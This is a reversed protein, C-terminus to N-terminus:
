RAGEGEGVCAGVRMHDQLTCTTAELGFCLVYHAHTATATDIHNSPLIGEAGTITVTIVDRSGSEAKHQVVHVRCADYTVSRAHRDEQTRLAAVVFNQSRPRLWLGAPPTSAGSRHVPCSYTATGSERNVERPRTLSDRHLNRVMKLNLTNWWGRAPTTNANRKVICAHKYTHVQTGKM